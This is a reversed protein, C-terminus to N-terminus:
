SLEGNQLKVVNGLKHLDKLVSDLLELRKIDWEDKTKPFLKKFEKISKEDVEVAIVYKSLDNIKRTKILEEFEKMSVGTNSTYMMPKIKFKNSLKNGDLKLRFLIKGDSGVYGKLHKSRTTSIGPFNRSSLSNTKIAYEMKDLTMLHYIVGVQKAEVLLEKFLNM